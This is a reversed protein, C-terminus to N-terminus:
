LGERCQEDYALCVADHSEKESVVGRKRVVVVEHWAYGTGSDTGHHIGAALAVVVAFAATQAFLTPESSVVGMAM